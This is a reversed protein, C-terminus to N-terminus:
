SGFDADLIDSTFRQQLRQRGAPRADYIFIARRMVNLHKSGGPETRSVTM